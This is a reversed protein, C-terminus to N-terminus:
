HTSTETSSPPDECRVCVQQHNKVLGDPYVSKNTSNKKKKKKFFIKIVIHDVSMKCKASCDEFM